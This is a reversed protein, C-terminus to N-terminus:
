TEKPMPYVCRLWEDRLSQAENVPYQLDYVLCFYLSDLIAWNAVMRSIWDRDNSKGDVGMQWLPSSENVVVALEKSEPRYTYRWFPAKETIGPLAQTAVSVKLHSGDRLRIDNRSAVGPAEAADGEEADGEESRKVMSAITSSAHTKFRQVMQLAEAGGTKKRYVSSAEMLRRLYPELKEQVEKWSELKTNWGVKTFNPDCMDLHLVGFLHAYNPHPELPLLGQTSPGNHHFQEVLQGYRFTHLGWEGKGSSSVKVLAIWGRIAIPPGRKGGGLDPRVTLKAAELDIKTEPIFVPVLPECLPLEVKTRTRGDTIQIEINNFEIDPSFARGLLDRLDGAKVKWDHLDTVRISTGSPLKGLPGKQDHPWTEVVLGDLKLKRAAIQRADITIRHEKGPEQYSRTTISVNWGLGLVGVKLGMGFKGKRQRMPLRTTDDAGRLRLAVELEPVTMGVSNDAIEVFDDALTVHIHPKVPREKLLAAYQALYRKADPDKSTKLKQLSTVEGASFRRWDISNALMEAFCQVVGINLAGVGDPTWTRDDATANITTRKM